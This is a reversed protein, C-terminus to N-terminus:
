FAESHGHAFDALYGRRLAALELDSATGRALLQEVDWEVTDSFVVSTADGEVQAGKENRLRYILQRVSHKDGDPFFLEGLTKRPVPRGREAILYLLAAIILENSAAVPKDGIHVSIQGITRLRIM